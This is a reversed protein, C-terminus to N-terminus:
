GEARRIFRNDAGYFLTALLRSPVATEFGGKSNSLHGGAPYMGFIWESKLHKFGSCFLAM